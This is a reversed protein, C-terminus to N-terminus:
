VAIWSGDCDCCAGHCYLCTQTLKRINRAPTMLVRGGKILWRFDAKRVILSVCKSIGLVRVTLWSRDCKGSTRLDTPCPSRQVSSAASDDRSRNRQVPM